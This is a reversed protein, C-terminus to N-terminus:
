ARRQQEEERSSGEEHPLRTETSSHAARRHAHVCWHWHTWHFSHRTGIWTLPACMSVSRWSYTRSAAGMQDWWARAIRAEGRRAAVMNWACTPRDRSRFREKEKEKGKGKGKETGKEKERERAMEREKEKTQKGM